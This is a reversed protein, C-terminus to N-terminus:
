QNVPTAHRQMGIRHDDILRERRLCAAVRGQSTSLTLSDKGGLWGM